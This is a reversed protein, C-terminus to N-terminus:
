LDLSDIYLGLDTPLYLGIDNILELLTLRPNCKLNNLDMEVISDNFISGFIRRNLYRKHCNSEKNIIRVVKVISKSNTMQKILNISLNEYVKFAM